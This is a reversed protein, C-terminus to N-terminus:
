KSRFLNEKKYQWISLGPIQGVFIYDISVLFHHCNKENDEILIIPKYEEITNLAGKLASLEHGEVDLQICSLNEIGLQDISITCVTEDGVNSILSGGALKIINVTTHRKVLDLKDSLGACFLFVNSLSNVEIVKKSLDEIEADTLTKDTPQLRVTLAISKKENGFEKGVFEDFVRM